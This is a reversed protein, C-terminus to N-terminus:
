VIWVPDRMLKKYFDHGRCLLFTMGSRRACIGDRSERDGIFICESGNLGMKKLLKQLGATQPKLRDIDPELSYCMADASLRLMKLKDEIPYDSFIGIKIGRRSLAEFFSDVMPYRCAFVHDLPKTYIWKEVIDSVNHPDVSLKDAVMKVQHESVGGAEKDALYERAQRFYRLVRIERIANRDSFLHGLLAGLMMLRLRRQDYLTGDVDFVVGKIKTWDIGAPRASNM